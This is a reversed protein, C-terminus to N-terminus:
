CPLDLVARDVGVMGSVRYLVQAVNLEIDPISCSLLFESTETITVVDVALATDDHEINGGTNGVLVDGVPV